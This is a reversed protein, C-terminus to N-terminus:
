AGRKTMLMRPRNDRGVGIVEVKVSVEARKCLRRGNNGRSYIVRGQGERGVKVGHGRGRRGVEVQVSYLGEKVKGGLRSGVGKRGDGGTCHLM